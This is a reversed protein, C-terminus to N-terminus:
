QHVLYNSKTTDIVYFGYEDEMDPSHFNTHKVLSISPSNFYAMMKHYQIDDKIEITFFHSSGGLIFLQNLFRFYVIIDQM